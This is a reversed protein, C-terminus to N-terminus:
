TKLNWMYTISYSTQVERDSRITERKGGEREEKRWEKRGGEREGERM